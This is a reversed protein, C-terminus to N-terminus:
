PGDPRIAPPTSQSVEGTGDEDHADGTDDVRREAGSPDASDDEKPDDAPDPAETVEAKSMLLDLIREERMQARLLVLQGNKEMQARMRPL